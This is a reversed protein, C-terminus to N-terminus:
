FLFFIIWTAYFFIQATMQAASGMDKAKKSLPHTELSIRDIANEIASNLLEVILCLISPLLLIIKEAFNNGFYLALPIGLANLLVVQRFAEEDQWAFRYGQLSYLFANKLRVFGTKGKHSNRQNNNEEQM